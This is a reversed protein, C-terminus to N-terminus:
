YPPIVTQLVTLGNNIATRDVSTLGVYDNWYQAKWAPLPALTTPPATLVTDHQAVPPPTSSTCAGVTLVIGLLMSGVSATM